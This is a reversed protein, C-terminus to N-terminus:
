MTSLHIEYSEDISDLIESIEDAKKTTAKSSLTNFFILDANKRWVRFDISKIENKMLKNTATILNKFSSKQFNIHSLLNQIKDENAMFFASDVANKAKLTIELKELSYEYFSPTDPDFWEKLLFLISKNRFRKERVLVAINAKGVVNGINFDLVRDLMIYGLASDQKTLSIKYTFNKPLFILNQSIEGIKIQVAINANSLGVMALSFDNLIIKKGNLSDQLIASDVEIRDIKCHHKIFGSCTLPSFNLHISHTELERQLTSLYRNIAKTEVRKLYENAILLCIGISIALFVVSFFAKKSM